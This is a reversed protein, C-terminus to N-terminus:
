GSGADDEMGIEALATARTPFAEMRVLQAGEFTWVFPFSPSRVEAGSDKGRGCVAAMVVVNDGADIVEEIEFAIDDFTDRWGQWAQKLGQAGRHAEFDPLIAPLLLEFDPPLGQVAADLDGRNLAEYGQMVREVNERSM